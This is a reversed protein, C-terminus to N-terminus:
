PPGSVGRRASDGLPVVFRFTFSEFKKLFRRLCPANCRRHRGADEGDVSEGGRSVLPSFPLSSLAHLIQFVLPLNAIVPRLKQFRSTSRTSSAAVGAPSPTSAEESPTSTAEDVIRTWRTKAQLSPATLLHWFLLTVAPNLVRADTDSVAIAHRAVIM